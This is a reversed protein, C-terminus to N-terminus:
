TRLGKVELRYKARIENLTKGNSSREWFDWGPESEQGSIAKAAGSLSGHLDENIRIYIKGNREIVIGEGSYRNAYGKKTSPVLRDGVVLYGTEVLDSLKVGFHRVKKTKKITPSPRYPIPPAPPSEQKTPANSPKNAHLWHLSPKKNVDCGMIKLMDMVPKVYSSIRSWDKKTMEPEGPENKNVVEINSHSTFARILECELAQAQEYPLKPKVGEGVQGYIVVAFIWNELSQSKPIHRQIRDSVGAKTAEGVYAKRKHGDSPLLDVLVYAGPGWEEPLNSAEARHVVALQPRPDDSNGADIEVEIVGATSNPEFKFKTM